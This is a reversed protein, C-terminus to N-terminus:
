YWRPWVHEPGTGPVPAAPEPAEPLVPRRPVPSPEAPPPLVSAPAEEPPGFSFTIHLGAEDPDRLPPLDATADAIETATLGVGVIHLRDLAPLARAQIKSFVPRM